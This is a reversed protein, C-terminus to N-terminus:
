DAANHGSGDLHLIGMGFRQLIRFNADSEVGSEHFALIPALGSVKRDDVDDPVNGLDKGVTDDVEPLIGFRDTIQRRSIFRIILKEFL